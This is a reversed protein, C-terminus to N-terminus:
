NNEKPIFRTLAQIAVELGPLAQQSEETKWHLRDAYHELLVILLELVDMSQRNLHLSRKIEAELENLPFERLARRATLYDTSM